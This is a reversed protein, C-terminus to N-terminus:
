QDIIETCLKKDWHLRLKRMITKNPDEPDEYPLETEVCYDTKSEDVVKYQLGNRLVFKTM